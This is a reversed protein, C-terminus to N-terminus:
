EMSLNVTEEIPREAVLSLFMKVEAEEMVLTTATAANRLKGPIIPSAVAEVIGMSGIRVPM